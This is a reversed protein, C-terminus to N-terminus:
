REDICKKCLGDISFGNYHPKFNYKQYIENLKKEIEQSYFEIIKGCKSCCLHNHKYEINEYYTKGNKTDVKKLLGLDVLINITRYVTARSSPQSSKESISLIDQISFHLKNTAIIKFLSKRELTI